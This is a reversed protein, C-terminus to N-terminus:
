EHPPDKPQHEGCLQQATTSPFIADHANFHVMVVTPPYRRCDGAFRNLSWVPDYWWRCTECRPQDTM